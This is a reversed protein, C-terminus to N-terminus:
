LQRRLQAAHGVIALLAVAAATIGGPRPQVDDVLDTVHAPPPAVAYTFTSLHRGPADAQLYPSYEASRAAGAAASVLTSTADLVDGAGPGRAAWRRWTPAGRPPDLTRPELWPRVDFTLGLRDGRSMAVNFSADGTTLTGAVQVGEPTPTTAPGSIASSGGPVRIEGTVWLPATAPLSVQGTRKGPLQRPLGDGAVPPVADRPHDAARRLRDLTSALPKISASGADATRTSTTNNHLTLTLTGDAPATAGPRLRLQRGDATHFTFAVALPLRAAEIGPDLTLRASLVRRGPSFGQWIVTGLQLVPPLTGSLGEAARAPGLERVIYNGAGRIVLRQRDTVAAPAGIPGLLVSVAETNHVTGPVVSTRLRDPRLGLDVNALPDVGEIPAPLRITSDRGPPAAGASSLAVIPGASVLLAVTARGLPRGRSTRAGAM